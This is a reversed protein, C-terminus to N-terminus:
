PSAPPDATQTLRNYFAALALGAFPMTVLAGIGVVLIGSVGILALVLSYGCFRLKQGDMLAASRQMAGWGSLASKSRIDDALLFMTQSWMLGLIIGPVVLCIVGLLVLITMLLGTVFVPVYYSFGQFIDIFRPTDQGRVATLMLLFYGLVLHPWVFLIVLPFMHAVRLLLMYVVFGSLLVGFHAKFTEFADSLIDQLGFDQAM